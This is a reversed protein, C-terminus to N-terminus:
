LRRNRVRALESARGVAARGLRAGEPHLRLHRLDPEDPWEGQVRRRAELGLDGAPSLRGHLRGPDRLGELRLTSVINVNPNVAHAADWCTALLAEYDAPAASSGDANYQPAWFAQDNPDNWIVVDKIQPNVTIMDAVYSCFQRRAEDTRPTDEARGYLSVVIRLGSVEGVIRYITDQFDSPM